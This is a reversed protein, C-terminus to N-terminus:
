LLANLLLLAIAIIITWFVVDIIFNGWNCAIGGWPIPEGPSYTIVIWAIPWGYGSYEFPMLAHIQSTAFTIGIALIFSILLVRTKQMM